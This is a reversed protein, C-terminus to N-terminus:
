LPLSKRALANRCQFTMILRKHRIITSVHRHDRTKVESVHAPAVFHSGNLVLSLRVDEM